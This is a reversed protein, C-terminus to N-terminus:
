DILDRLQTELTQGSPRDVLRADFGAARAGDYDDTKNDGILLLPDGPAAGAKSRAIEYIRPDPKEVGVEGSIVITRFRRTAGLGDLVPRLRVDWNSIIGLRYGARELGDFVREVEPFFRYREARAFEDFVAQFYDEFRPSDGAPGVSERVVVRWWEKARELSITHPTAGSALDRERMLRFSRRVAKEVEAHDLGLDFRDGVEAYVAGISPNATLLTGGVDFFITHYPLEPPPSTM